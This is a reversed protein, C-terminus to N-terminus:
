LRDLYDECWGLDWYFSDTWRQWTTAKAYEACVTKYAAERDAKIVHEPITRIESMKAEHRIYGEVFPVGILIFATIGAVLAIAGRFMTGAQGIM